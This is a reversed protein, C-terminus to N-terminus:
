YNFSETVVEEGSAEIWAQVLKLLQPSMCLYYKTGRAANRAELVHEQMIRGPVVRSGMEEVKKIARAEDDSGGTGSTVFLQTVGALGPVREFTDVALGLDKAQLSWLLSLASNAALLEPAQALLPTIGVGGAVFVTKKNNNAGMAIRFDEKGGFSLVPVELLAQPNQRWLLGTAPGNRRATIQFESGDALEQVDAPPPSSVTFTRVFDDNLSQPDDDRMHSWGHDLEESFDLTVHQGARWPKLPGGRELQLKFTFRAVNPTLLERKVFRASALSSGGAQGPVPGENVLRRVPPNYPSPEGPVGRFALGDAVFRAERVTIKVAVKAHPMVAAAREGVLLETEGTLYLVDSTEFDPIVVGVRADAQLNGLTQYLQNGSYEPYVLVTGEEEDNKLVRVFGRPGGRHNTDMGGAGDTSSLFFM